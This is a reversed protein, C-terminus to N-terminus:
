GGVWENVCGEDMWGDMWGDMWRGMWGDMWGPHAEASVHEDQVEQSVDTVQRAQGHIHGLTVGFAGVAGEEIVGGRDSCTVM